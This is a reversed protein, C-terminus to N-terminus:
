IDWHFFVITSTTQWFIIWFSTENLLWEDEKGSTIKPTCQKMSKRSLLKLNSACSNWVSKIRVIIEEEDKFPNNMRNKFVTTKVEKRFYYDLTNAYWTLEPNNTRLSSAVFFTQKFFTKSFTVRTLLTFLSKFFSGTM